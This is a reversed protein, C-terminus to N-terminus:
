GTQPLPPRISFSGNPASQKDTSPASADAVRVSMIRDRTEHLLRYGPELRDKEIGLRELLTMYERSFYHAHVDLRM